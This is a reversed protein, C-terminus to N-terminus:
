IIEWDEVMGDVLELLPHTEICQVNRIQEYQLPSRKELKNLLHRFEYDVQGRTVTIRGDFYEGALRSEDFSYNRCRAEVLVHRLYSAIAGVPNDTKRFRILRPHNRYGRTHGELVKQALLGERWLAVM